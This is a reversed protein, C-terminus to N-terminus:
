GHAQALTNGICALVQEESKADDAQRHGAAIAARFQAALSKLVEREEPLGAGTEMLRLASEPPALRDDVKHPVLWGFGTVRPPLSAATDQHLNGRFTPRPCMRGETTIVFDFRVM